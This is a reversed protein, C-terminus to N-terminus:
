KYYKKYEQILLRLKDKDNKILKNLENKYEDYKNINKRTEKIEKIIRKVIEDNKDKKNRADEKKKRRADEIEKEKKRTDEIEKEKKRTDEKKDIKYSNSKSKSKSKNYDLSKYDDNKLVYILTRNGQNFSFCLDNYEDLFGKLNCRDKNICFDNNKHLDWEFPMLECPLTRDIGTKMAPDNTNRIWGNYVYKNNKCTIGAIAHGLNIQRDNFNGLAVSDLIYTRGNYTIENLLENIGTFNFNNYYGNLIYFDSLIQDTNDGLFDYIDRTNVWLNIVIYLPIVNEVKKKIFDKYKQKQNYDKLYSTYETQGSQQLYLSITDSIGFYFNKMTSGFMSYSYTNFFDLTLYNIGIGEFLDPIFFPIFYGKEQIFDIINSQLDFKTLISNITNKTFFEITKKDLKYNKYLLSKLTKSLIDTKGDFPKYHLLLKRSNQSYFIMMMLANFWCTGTIQPITIVSQCFEKTM